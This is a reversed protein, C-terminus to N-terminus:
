AERTHSQTHHSVQGYDVQLKALELLQKKDIVTNEKFCQMCLLRKPTDNKAINAFILPFAKHAIVACMIPKSPYDFNARSHLM